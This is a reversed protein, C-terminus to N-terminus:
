FFTEKSLVDYLDPNYHYLMGPRHKGGTQKQGSAYIFDMKNVKRYFNRRDIKINFVQEYLTQLEGLTFAQPLLEFALPRTRIALRLAEIAKTYIEEQHFALPPIEYAPWWKARLADESAILQYKESDILAFFAVTITRGRPDRGHSSFVHFQELYIDKLGTEELLERKATDEVTEEGEMFGGPIAWMGQFPDVKREILAVKLTRDAYGFIVSDVTIPYLSRSM